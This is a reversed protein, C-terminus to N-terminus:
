ILEDSFMKGDWEDLDDNQARFDDIWMDFKKDWIFSAKQDGIAEWARATGYMILGDDAGSIDSASADNTTFDGAYHDGDFRLDKNCNATLCLPFMEITGGRRTWHTPKTKAVDSHTPDPYLVDFEDTAMWELQYSNLGDLYWVDTIRCISYDTTSDGATIDSISYALTVTTDLSTPNKFSMGHLGVCEDVIKKQGENLWRAVRTDTIVGVDSTSDRGVIARVEDTLQEGTLAM